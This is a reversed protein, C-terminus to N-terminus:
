SRQESSYCEIIEFKKGRYAKTCCKVRYTGKLVSKVKALTLVNSSTSKSWTAITNWKKGSKKQLYMTTEIKTANSNGDRVTVCVNAVSKKITLSAKVASIYNFKKLASKAGSPEALSVMTMSVLITVVLLFAIIIRRM